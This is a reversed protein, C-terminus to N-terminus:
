TAGQLKEQLRTRAVSAVRQLYRHVASCTAAEVSTVHDMVETNIFHFLCVLLGVWTSRNCHLPWSLQTVILVVYM